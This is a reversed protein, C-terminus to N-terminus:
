PRTSAFRRSTRYLVFVGLLLVASEVRTSWAHLSNFQQRVPSDPALSNIESAPTRLADMRPIIKFQLLATLAMMIAVLTHSLAFARFKGQLTRNLLMSAALFVLGCALGMWHLKLLSDRVVLGALRTSPLVSFSTQAVVPLFALAGLWAALSLLMLFRMFSM